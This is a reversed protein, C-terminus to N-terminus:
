MDAFSVLTGLGGLKNSKSHLWHMAIADKIRNAGKIRFHFVHNDGPFSIPGDQNENCDALIDIRPLSNPYLGYLSLLKGIAVDDILKYDINKRNNIILRCTKLALFFGSGSAFRIPRFKVSPRLLRPIQSILMHLLSIPKGHYCGIVGAYVLEGLNTTPAALFDQMMAVDVFSSLNTRYVYDYGKINELCYELALVLKCASNSITDDGKVTLTHDKLLTESNVNGRYFVVRHGMSNADKCWTNLQAKKLVQYEPSFTDLVLFLIKM